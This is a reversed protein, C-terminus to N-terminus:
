KIILQKMDDPIDPYLPSFLLHNSYFEYSAYSINYDNVQDRWEMIRESISGALGMKELSGSIIQQEFDEQSLYSATEDVAYGYNANNVEYFAKLRALCAGHQVPEILSVLLMAFALICGIILKAWHGSPLYSWADGENEHRWRRIWILPILILTIAVAWLLLIM